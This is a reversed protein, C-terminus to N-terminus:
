RSVLAKRLDLFRPFVTSDLFGDAGSPAPLPWREILARAEEKRGASLLAQAYLTRVLGDSSPSTHLYAQKLAEPDSAPNSNWVAAQREAVQKPAQALNKMALDRRGTSYDWAAERWPILPDRSKGRFEIYRAMIADAGKLDGALWHAYAAKVLDAGQLFAPNSDHAQLFYKEADAFRGNMFYAEGLSDLSNTKQGEDQGYREFTKRAADIQGAYAQDYGLALLAAPNEPEQQLIQQYLEAAQPFNRALTESEALRGSLATDAPDLRHLENLAQERATEDKKLTAALVNLRAHDIPTRLTQRALGREAIAAAEANEGKRSESEAWAIWAAGFDPDLTVAREDEGQAWAAVADANATSFPQAAPNLKHAARNMADLVGGSIEDDYLIKHRAADEFEVDFRLGGHVETVTGHLFRNAGALYGDSVNGARIPVVESAGVLQEALISQAAPEIWDLAANGTLNEFPLIAIRLPAAQPM